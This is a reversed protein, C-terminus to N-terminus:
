KTRLAQTAQEEEKQLKKALEESMVEELSCPVPIVPSTGWPHADASVTAPQGWPSVPKEPSEM